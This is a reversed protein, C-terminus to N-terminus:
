FTFAPWEQKLIVANGAPDHTMLRRDTFMIGSLRAYAISREELDEAAEALSPVALTVRIAIPDVRPKDVHWVRLELRASRFCLHPPAQSDGPVEELGAVEGYFWRLDEAFGSAAELNVHDVAQIRSPKM